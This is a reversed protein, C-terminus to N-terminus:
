KELLELAKELQLDEKGDEPNTIEYDPTVGKEHIVNGKPSFYQMITLKLASGDDFEVTSQIVGKGFTTQGVLKFGNDQLAAALIEAASASNENVLVVTEIDTKGDEATYESRKKDKGEVYVVVGEDLFEDAVEICSTLLGGGNDRLDLVLKDAGASEAEELAAKFDDSTNSIFSTINIYATKDDLMESSVSHQEIKKRTLTVTKEEGDHQYTVEVETGEKGKIANAMLDLSDYTKGDAKLIIDGAEIGASVAPSDEQVSVVIFQGSKDETFTVGIGSYEGQLTNAWNKYETETMYASYPDGLAEVLGKCAGDILAEDDAEKYYNEDLQQYVEDLKAYKDKDYGSQGSSLAFVGGTLVGGALFAAVIVAIFKKRSIQM